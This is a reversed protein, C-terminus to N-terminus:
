RARTVSLASIEAERLKGAFATKVLRVDPFIRTSLRPPRRRWPRLREPSGSTRVLAVLSPADDPSALYYMEVADPDQMAVWRANGAVGVVTNGEFPQGVPDEGPWQGM